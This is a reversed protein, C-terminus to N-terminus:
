RCGPDKWSRIRAPQLQLFGLEIHLVHDDSTTSSSAGLASSLPMPNRERTAGPRVLRTTPSAARRRWTSTFRTPLAMLNVPEPSTTTETSFRWPRHPRSLQGEQDGIGADANGLVFQRRNEFGELLHVSRGGSFVAAGAQAQRNAAFQHLAHAANQAHLALGPAAARELKCSLEPSGGPLKSARGGM